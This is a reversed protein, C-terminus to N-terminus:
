PCAAVYADLGARAASFNQAARLQGYTVGRWSVKNIQQALPVERRLLAAALEARTCNSPLAPLWAVLTPVADASLRRALYDTDLSAGVGAMARQMNTRAIVADPNLINVTLVLLLGAVLAGFAFLRRGAASGQPETHRLVTVVLWILVVALWAMFATTYFRLETLGYAQQYLLMRQLASACIVLTFLILLTNLGNIALGNKGPRPWALWDMALVVSLVLAAATVLEFFGKRAYESYVMGARELTEAGGFLYVAQIAVFLGFLLNLTALVVIAQTSGLRLGGPRAMQALAKDQQRTFAHRMVGIALWAMLLGLFLHGLVTGLNIDRFIADVYGAFVADAAYFLGGFLLVLPLAILLGGAAPALGRRGTPEAPAHPLDGFLFVFPQGLASLASLLGEVAYRTISLQRLRGPLYVIAALLILGLGVSINVVQLTPSARLALMAGSAVLCLLLGVASVSARLKLGAGVFLWGAAAVLTALAYGFGAAPVHILWEILYGIILAAGLVFYPRPLAPTKPKPTVGALPTATPITTEAM